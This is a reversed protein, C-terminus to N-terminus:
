NCVVSGIAVLSRGSLGMLRLPWTDVEGYGDLEPGVGSAETESTHLGAFCLYYSHKVRWLARPGATTDM